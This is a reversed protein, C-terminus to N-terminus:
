IKNTEMFEYYVEKVALTFAEFNMRKELDEHKRYILSLAKAGM